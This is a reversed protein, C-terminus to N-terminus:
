GLFFGKKFLSFVIMFGVECWSGFKDVDVEFEVVVDFWFMM